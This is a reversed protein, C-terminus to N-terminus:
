QQEIGEGKVCADESEMVKVTSEEHGDSLKKFVANVDDDLTSAETCSMNSATKMLEPQRDDTALHLSQVHTDEPLDDQTAFEATEGCGDKDEAQELSSNVELGSHEKLAACIDNVSKAEIVHLQGSGEVPESDVDVDSVHSTEADLNPEDVGDNAQKFATEIDELSKTDVAMMEAEIRSTVPESDVDVDSVHSTEADLNPEDVGDNAQKFATEIDELSKADVAMMETDIRSTVPDNETVELEGAVVEMYAESPTNVSSVGTVGTVDGPLKLETNMAEFSSGELIRRRPNYVTQEPDDHSTRLSWSFEPDSGSLYDVPLSREGSDLAIDDSMTNDDSIDPSVLSDGTVGGAPNDTHFSLDPVHQDLRVPEVRFDGVADLESLFSEDIGNDELPEPYIKDADDDSDLLYASTLEEKMDVMDVRDPESTVSFFPNLIDKPEVLSQISDSVEPPCLSVVASSLRAESAVDFHEEIVHLDTLATGSGPFIVTEHKEQINFNEVVREEPIPHLDMSIAPLTEKEFDTLLDMSGHILIEPPIENNLYSRSIINGDEEPINTAGLSLEGSRLENEEAPMPSSLWESLEATTNSAM